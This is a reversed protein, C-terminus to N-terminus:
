LKGGLRLFEDRSIPFFRIRDGVACPMAPDRAPDFLPTPCLGILNWGGPSVDPYVATQNDAVAVAGKPVAIRPTKHRPTAIRSDVEGLYAFGPAFGIAYVLYEGCSHIDIVDDPTLNHLDAVRQLDEGSEHSYYVPLRVLAGAEAASQEDPELALIKQKLTSFRTLRPNYVVVM